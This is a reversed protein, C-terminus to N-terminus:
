GLIANIVGLTDTPTPTPRTSANGTVMQKAERKPQLRKIEANVDKLVSDALAVMAKGDTPYGSQRVRLEVLQNVRDQKLKWDPDNTAQREHWDDAAKVVDGIRAQAAQREQTERARQQDRETRERVFKTEAEAQAIRRADAESVYGQRVKEQMDEPVTYGAIRALEQVLPALVELAKRPENKMLAMIEFGQKVEAPALDSADMFSTIQELSQAQPKLADVEAQLTNKVDVLQRIRRQANPTYQSTEEETPDGDLDDKAEDKSEDESEDTAEIGVDSAPSEEDGGLAAQVVDLTTRTEVGEAASPEAANVDPETAEVETEVVQDENETPPVSKVGKDFL